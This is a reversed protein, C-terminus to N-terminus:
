VLLLVRENQAQKRAKVRQLRLDILGALIRALRWRGIAQDLLRTRQALRRALRGATLGTVLACREFANGFRGVRDIYLPDM